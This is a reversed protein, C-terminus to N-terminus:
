AYVLHLIKPDLKASDKIKEAIDMALARYDETNSNVLFSTTAADFAFACPNDGMDIVSGIRFDQWPIYETAAGNCFIVGNTAPEIYARKCVRLMKYYYMLFYGLVVTGVGCIVALFWNTIKFDVITTWFFYLAIPLAVALFMVLMTTTKKAIVSRFQRTFMHKKGDSSFTPSSTNKWQETVQSSEFYQECKPCYYESEINPDAINLSPFSVSNVPKKCVALRAGCTPCAKSGFLMENASRLKEM